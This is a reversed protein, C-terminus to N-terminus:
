EGYSDKTSELVEEMAERWGQPGIGPSRQITPIRKMIEHDWTGDPNRIVIPRDVQNLFGIDNASNGLGVSFVSPDSRHYLELLTTVARGKDNGGTLHCFRDGEVVSFGKATLATYLDEREGGTIVFPEDYERKAALASDSRNLGTLRAIEDLTMSGFSRLGVGNQRAAESLAKRLISIKKGLKLIKFKGKARAGEVPFPFAQELFYIAGGNEVIFPASLGLEEWLPQIEAYTKSSCLILPIGLSQLRQIAPLCADYRYTQQDLLTGDLDTVVVLRIPKGTRDKELTLCGSWM